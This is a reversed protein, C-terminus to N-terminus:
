AIEDEDSDDFDTEFEIEEDLKEIERSRTYEEALMTKVFEASPELKYVLEEVEDITLSFYERRLNIKNLRKQHLHRHLNNELAPADNSFILSHVDFKFPVSADGLENVRDMPELRRTMGIKFVNEGFSGLNSIIYVYGAKGNQLRLIGEKKEEVMDLQGNIDDIREILQQRKEDDEITNLQVRLSNIENKYKLEEEEIKKKEEALRKKEEAEQKMQQRLIKQEEKIREKKVYYEYEIEVAQNYLFSIEGIFKKITPAINKNGASAIKEYKECIDNVSKIVKEKNSYKLSVMVNQLEAELGIIMLQYITLNAKTTYRDQYTKLTEKIVSSNQTFRKRLERVDLSHFHLKITPELLLNIEDIEKESEIISTDDFSDLNKLGKRLSKLKTQIKLLRRAASDLSTEEAKRKEEFEEFLSRKLEVDNSISQFESEKEAIKLSIENMAEEKAKKKMEHFLEDYNSKLKTFQNTVDNLNNTTLQIKHILEKEQEELGIIRSCDDCHGNSDIKQFFKRKGCRKCRGM